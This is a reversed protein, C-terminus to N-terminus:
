YKVMKKQYYRRNTTKKAMIKKLLQIPILMDNEKSLIIKYYLAFHRININSIKNAIALM